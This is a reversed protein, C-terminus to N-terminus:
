AMVENIQLFSALAGALRAAGAIGNFTTVATTGAGARIKFTPSATTGALMRYTLPITRRGGSATIDEQVAAVVANDIDTNLTVTFVGTTAATYVGEHHVDLVNAASTRTIAQSMFQDGQASTPASNSDPIATTDAGTAMTGSASRVTQIIAGPLPDSRHHLELRTPASAYTGATALGSEYSFHGLVAYAKSTVATGTYFVQASDAAGAGGEATSSAVPFQGLPYISSADRVTSSIANASTALCNIVGLRFTGADNFGVVWGRFPANNATGLTSGSSVVFSTAATLKLVSYDGTAATANRILVFVPDAASPDVGALTKIAITMANAAVTAVLTGNLMPYGGSVAANALSATGIQTLTTDPVSAWTTGNDYFMQGTDTAIYIRDASGAAPRGALTGYTVGAFMVQEDIITEVAGDIMKVRVKGNRAWFEPKGNIPLTFPNAKAASLSDSSYISVLTDSLASTVRITPVGSTILNGASDQAVGSYKDM